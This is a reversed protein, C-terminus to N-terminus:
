VPDLLAASLQPLIEGASGTLAFEALKTVPTQSPNIEVLIADNRLAIEMLGAAPYVLSSTGISLFVDCREAAQQAAELAAAPIAEGFWVVDPRLMGGCAPCRPPVDAGPAPQAVVIHEISCIDRMINGHYEIVDTSGARQHLGDVNQTVLNFRALIRAMRALAGHGPNPQAGSVMQRRWAYWDWVRRPNRAFAEPTALDEPRFEAWIGTQADRFTPIGSEASIGSGTLVTVERSQRLTAILESPVPAMLPEDTVSVAASGARCRRCHQPTYDRQSTPTPSSVCFTTFFVAM